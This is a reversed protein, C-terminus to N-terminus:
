MDATETHPVEIGHEELAAALVDNHARMTKAAALKQRSNAQTEALRKKAVHVADQSDSIETSVTSISEATGQLLSSVNQTPTEDTVAPAPPTKKHEIFATLLSRKRNTEQMLAADVSAAVRDSAELRELTESLNMNEFRNTDEKAMQKLRKIVESTAQKDYRAGDLTIDGDNNQGTGM